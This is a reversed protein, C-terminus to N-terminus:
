ILVLLPFIELFHRFGKTETEQRFTKYSELMATDLHIDNNYTVSFLGLNAGRQREEPTCELKGCMGHDIEATRFPRAPQTTYQGGQALWIDTTDNARIAPTVHSQDFIRERITLVENTSASMLMIDILGERVNQRIINRYDDLSRFRGENAHHEPSKGPAAMGGAMDADKADALLFDECSPDQLIRALKADLSKTVM